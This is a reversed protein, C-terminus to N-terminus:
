YFTKTEDLITYNGDTYDLIIVNCNRQLGGAWFHELSHKKIYSMIGKNIAGHAVIMVRQCTAELPEIVEHMFNGAREILHNLSEGDDTPQYLHPEDFFYKFATDNDILETYSKGEFSGFNLERIRDDTILEIDRGNRILNATEYARKLPSSYIIDIKTDMLAQGTKIALDRGAESLLIDTSGQLRKEKNWKTEGHRVIYIEM